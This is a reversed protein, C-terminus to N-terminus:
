HGSVNIGYQECLVFSVGSSDVLLFLRFFGNWNFGVSTAVEDERFHSQPVGETM